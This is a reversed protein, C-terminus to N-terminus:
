KIGRGSKNIMVNQKNKELVSIVMDATKPALVYRTLIGYSKIKDYREKDKTGICLGKYDTIFYKIEDPGFGFIAGSCIDFADTEKADINLGHLEPNQEVVREAYKQIKKRSEIRRKAFGSCIVFKDRLRIGKTFFVDKARLLSFDAYFDLIAIRKMFEDQSMGDPLKYKHYLKINIGRAKLENELNQASSNWKQGFPSWQLAITAFFLESKKSLKKSM